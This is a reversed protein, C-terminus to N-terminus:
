SDIDSNINEYECINLNVPFSDAAEESNKIICKQLVDIETM